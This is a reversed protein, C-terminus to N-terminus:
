VAPSQVRILATWHLGTRQLFLGVVLAAQMTYSAATAWAAGAAGLGPILTFDLLVTLALTIAASLANLAIANVGALYTGLVKAVSFPVIGLVLISILAPAESFGGGFLTVLFLESCLWGVGACVASALLSFRAARIALAARDRTEPMAVVPFLVRAIANPVIWVLQALSVALAYVGVVATGHFAVLVWLDIRYTLFQMTDAVYALGSYRWLQALGPSRKGQADARLASPRHLWARRALYSALFVARGAELVITMIVIASATAWPPATLLLGASICAAAAAVLVASVNVPTFAVRAVLVAILWSSAQSTAFYLVLAGVLWAASASAPLLGRLPTAIALVASGAAAFCTLVFVPLLSWLLLRPQVVDSAIFYTIASAIGAGFVLVLLAGANMFLALEGM